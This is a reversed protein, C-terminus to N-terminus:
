RAWAPFVALDIGWRPAIWLFTFLTVVVATLLNLVFGARAMQAIALRGSGFLIANPPTAVPLMFACSVALTAPLALLLPHVGAAASATFILPLLLNITATNSTIETLFTVALSVLLVTRVPGAAGVGGALADGIAQSLGTRDCARALAFGGGLLLLVGWPLSRCDEWELLTRRGDEGPLIFLLFVGFLAVTADSISGAAAAPLLAQWGPLAVPGLDAGQRTIWLVATLAFVALVRTQAPRRRGLGGERRLAELGPVPEVPLRHILRTLVLWTLLLFVAAFPVVGVVWTGFAIEPARPFREALLGLLVGNPATGIPTATGGISCSYAIALLLPPGLRAADEEACADLVALAVPLMLLATSTNSIFMSLAAGVLMFGLVVRRPRCGFLRLARLAFRRHLEYRELALALVFGGLFLLLIDHFYFPAVVRAPLAGTLPLLLAPLLSAVPLPLSGTLWCWATFFAVGATARAPGALEAVGPLFPLALALAGGVVLRPRPGAFSAPSFSAM